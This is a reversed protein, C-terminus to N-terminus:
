ISNKEKTPLVIRLCLQIVLNNLWISEVFQIPLHNKIVLLGLNEVFTKKNHMIKKYPDIARAFFNFIVSENMTLRKNALLRKLPSKLTSNVKEEITKAVKGHNADV